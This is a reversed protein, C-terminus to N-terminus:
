IHFVSIIPPKPCDTSSLQFNLTFFYSDAFRKQYEARLCPRLLDVNKQIKIKEVDKNRGRM